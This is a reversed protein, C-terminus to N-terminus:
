EYVYRNIYTGELAVREEVRSEGNGFLVYGIELQPRKNTTDVSREAGALLPPRIWILYHPYSFIATFDKRTRNIECLCRRLITDAPFIPSHRHLILLRDFLATAVYSLEFVGDVRSAKAGDYNVGFAVADSQMGRRNSKSKRAVNESTGM